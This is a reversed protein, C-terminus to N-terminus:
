SHPKLKSVVCIQTIQVNINPSQGADESMGPGPSSEMKNISMSAYKAETSCISWGGSLPFGKATVGTRAGVPQQM